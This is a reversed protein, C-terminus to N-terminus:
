GACSTVSTVALGGPLRGFWKHMADYMDEGIRAASVIQGMLIFLPISAFLFEMGTNFGATYFQMLAQKFGLLWTMGALAVLSIAWAIPVGFIILSILAAFALYGITPDGM